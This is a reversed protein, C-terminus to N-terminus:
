NLRVISLSIGSWEVLLIPNNDPVAIAEVSILVNAVYSVTYQHLLKGEM